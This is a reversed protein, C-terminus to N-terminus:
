PLWSSNGFMGHKDGLVSEAASQQILTPPSTYPNCGKDHTYRDIGIYKQMNLMMCVFYFLVSKIITQLESLLYLFMVSFMVFLGFKCKFKFMM